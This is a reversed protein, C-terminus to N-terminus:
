SILAIVVIACAYQGRREPRIMEHPVKARSSAYLMTFLMAPSLSSNGRLLYSGSIILFLVLRKAAIFSVVPRSRMNLQEGSSIFLARGGTGSDTVAVYLINPWFTAFRWKVLVVFSCAHILLTLFEVLRHKYVSATHDSPGQLVADEWSRM